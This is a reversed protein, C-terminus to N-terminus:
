YIKSLVQLIFLKLYYQFAIKNKDTPMQQKLKTEVSMLYDESIFVSFFLIGLSAM